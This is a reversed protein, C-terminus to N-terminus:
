KHNANDVYDEFSISLPSHPNFLCCKPPAPNQPTRNCCVIMGYVFAFIVPILFMGWRQWITRGNGGASQTPTVDDPRDSQSKSPNRVIKYCVESNINAFYTSGRGKGHEVRLTGYDEDGNIKCSIDLLSQNKFCASCSKLIDQREPCLIVENFTFNYPDQNIVIPCDTIPVTVNCMENYNEMPEMDENKDEVSVKSVKPNAAEKSRKMRQQNKEVFNCDESAMRIPAGNATRKQFRVTIPIADSCNIELLSMGMFCATCSGFIQRSEPCFIPKQVIFNQDNHTLIVSVDPAPVSMMCSFDSHAQYLFSSFTIWFLCNGIAKKPLTVKFKKLFGGSKTRPGKIVVVAKIKKRKRRRQRRKRGRKQVPLVGNPETASESPPSPTKEFDQDIDCPQLVKKSKHIFCGEEQAPSEKPIVAIEAPSAKEPTPSDDAIVAM